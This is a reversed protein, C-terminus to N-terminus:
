SIGLNSVFGINSGGFSKVNARSTLPKEEKSSEPSFEREWFVEAEAASAAGRSGVLSGGIAAKGNEKVGSDELDFKGAAGAGDTGWSATGTIDKLGGVGCFYSEEASIGFKKAFEESRVRVDSVGVRGGGETLKNPAGGTM